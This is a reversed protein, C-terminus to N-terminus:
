KEVICLFFFITIWDQLTKDRQQTGDDHLKRATSRGGGRRRNVFGGVIEIRREGKENVLCTFNMKQKREKITPRACVIGIKSIHLNSYLKKKLWHANL